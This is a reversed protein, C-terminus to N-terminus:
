GGGAAIWRGLLARESETIHTRNAPPMTKTVVARERIRDLRSRIQEPTDFMVGVPAAGFTLDSPTASHCAACRRDIVRRAEEFSVVGGAAPVEPVAALPLSMLMAIAAVSAVLVAALAPRWSAFTFRVNLVHRIAAGAIVLVLLMAWPARGAYLAPFHGSVMLVIVPFTFYNNHISVRKARASIVPDASGSTAVAKVLERQSPVITFFVNGAMISAMMAGVHLFAARGNLTTTAAVVVGVFAAALVLEAVRPARPAVLRQVLEYFAVGGFVIAVGLAVAQGHSLAAVGPDELAARGGVWYVALLLAVGSMWTTYAQWKFWHLPSPLGRGGLSTKEVQYFAGSHLLWTSGISGPPMTGDKVLTRDMWNFLMSNGVWMIGAIVHIWRAVLDGLEWLRAADMTM